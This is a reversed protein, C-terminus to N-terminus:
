RMMVLGGARAAARSAPSTSMMSWTGVDSMARSFASGRIRIESISLRRSIYIASSRDRLPAEGNM